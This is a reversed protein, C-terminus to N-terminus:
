QFVAQVRQDRFADLLAGFSEDTVEVLAYRKGLDPLYHADSAATIICGEPLLPRIADIRGPDTVEAGDVDLGPPIFGLQGIIGFAERDVHALIVLGDRDRVAAVTDELSLGAAALLLKEEFGDVGGSADVYVQMGFLDPDNKTTLTSACLRQLDLARELDPLISVVHVEESTCIELGPLVMLDTDRAAEIVAGANGASNHDCVAIIDLGVELARKVIEAPHMDLDGCPSLCTHVHLDAKRSLM